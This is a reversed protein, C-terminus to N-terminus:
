GDNEGEQKLACLFFDQAGFNGSKLILRLEPRETPGLLPVGPAVSAGIRFSRLGLSRLVAGSTEGGAVVVRRYGMAVATSGLRAFADELMPAYAADYREQQKAGCSYILPEKRCNERMFDEAQGLTQEGSVLKVPDLQLAPRGADRYCRIQEESRQSCSGCLVIGPGRVGSVEEAAETRAAGRSHLEALAELLGSGGTLLRANFFREAIGRGQAHNEYDPVLYFHEADAGLHLLQEETCAIDPLTFCPYSSQPAMLEKLDSAWMPNLPHANMPSQALPVGNVFLTGNRVTRGNDPLSPCLLTYRVGMQSVVADVVPGINGEPTSDFTSCYKLYIQRAGAALLERVAACTQAVAEAAPMSRTKLGIVVAQADGFDEGSGPCGLHLLTQLGGKKLYSAADSAGTVDDAVCGILLEKKM